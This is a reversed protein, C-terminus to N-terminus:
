PRIVNLHMFRRPGSGSSVSDRVHQVTNDESLVVETVGTTNWNPSSLDDSWEVRFIIGDSIAAKTRTYLFEMTDDALVLDGPGANGQTPDTDTAFEMLNPLGDFDFDNTDAGDGSNDPSGFYQIRWAELNTIGTGTLAVDFPNEDADNSAIHLAATRVGLATPTFKVTFTTSGGPVVPATPPGTVIFEAAYAGDFTIALGTLDAGGTNRVTFTRSNNANRAVSGFDVTSAGDTLNNGVPQEVAIEPLGNVTISITARSSTLPPSAGDGTDTVTFNFNDSGSYNAAPTYTLTPATGTLAGHAPPVTVTFTLNAPPTEVDSGTLTINLQTGQNTAVSQADATPPDNVPTVTISVTATNSDVHGDNAKFTFSDAGNYNATPTYTLNPAAGSLAGHMPGTVVSFTLPDNDPDSATLTIAKATDENTTVSQPNATPAGNAHVHVTRTVQTAANGAVDSVNYTVPYDGPVATNVASANVVISSTLNGDLNDTATAGPDVYTGGVNIIM